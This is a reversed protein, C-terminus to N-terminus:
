KEAARDVRTGGQACAESARRQQHSAGGSGSRCLSPRVTGAPIEDGAGARELIDGVLLRARAVLDPEFRQPNTGALRRNIARDGRVMPSSPPLNAMWNDQVRLRAAALGGAAALALLLSALVRRPGAKALAPLFRAIATEFARAPLRRRPAPRADFLVLLAPVLTFTGLSSFLLSLGGYLGFVRQPELRTLAISVLGMFTTITTFLIPFRVEGFSEVILEGVPRGPEARAQSFYNNLAYIDDTMGIVILIVPLVLTTVFVAQHQFGMIGVTWIQSLGVELLSVVVPAWHRFALSLVAALVAVVVPVLRVLDHAAAEGLVAQAMATGSYYIPWGAASWKAALAQVQRSVRLRDAEPRVDAYIAATRGDRAALVGDDLGLAATETQIRRAMAADPAVGRDLWPRLDLQDDDIHLRPVTALSVVSGPVIGAVRALDRGLAAVVALAAPDYITGGGRGGVAVVVMDRLEFRRAAVDGAAMAPDGAPILSRADLRPEVAPVGCVFVASALLSAVVVLWPHGVSFRLLALM